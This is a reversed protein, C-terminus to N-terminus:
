KAPNASAFGQLYSAVDEMEEPTLAHTVQKMPTNPRFDTEQFVHLQRVLYPSHQNALRPFNALGQAQPGHCAMCPPAEKEPLGNEFIKRGAAMRAADGPANPTSVQKSFYEAIGDIQADTLTHSLGWMYEPGPPDMRDHGRFNKLQNVLYDKQQQALKPFQPNVSNGDDGHCISCVQQAITQGSVNPDALNRSRELNSCGAGLLAIALALPLTMNRM